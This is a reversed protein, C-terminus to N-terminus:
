DASKADTTAEPSSRFLVRESDTGGVVAVRFADGGSGTFHKEVLAPVLQGRLYSEDLQMVTYGFMPTPPAATQRPRPAGPRGNEFNQLGAILLSDDADAFLGREPAQLAK